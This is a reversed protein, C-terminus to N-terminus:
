FLTEIFIYKIFKGKNLEKSFCNNLSILLVIVAFFKNM